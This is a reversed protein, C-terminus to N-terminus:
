EVEKAIKRLEELQGRLKTNVNVIGLEDSHKHDQRVMQSQGGRRVFSYDFKSSRFRSVYRDSLNDSLYSVVKSEWDEIDAVLKGRAGGSLLSVGDPGYDRLKEGEVILRHLTDGTETARLERRPTPDNRSHAHRSLVIWAGVVGAVPILLTIVHGVSFPFGSM